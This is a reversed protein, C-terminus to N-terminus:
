KLASVAQLIENSHGPVKVKRWIHALQGSKDVLFSSREIGMYSRGYMSKAVWVGYKECLVGEEDALLVFPLQYKARFKEHSAIGDRSVGIIQVSAKKFEAWDDRFQCAEKTCGSTDDKPYFYLLYPKGWLDRSLLRAKGDAHGACALDFEPAPDGPQLLSQTM